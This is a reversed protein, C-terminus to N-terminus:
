ELMDVMNCIRKAPSGSATLAILLSALALFLVAWRFLLKGLDVLASYPKLVQVFVERIVAFTLLMGLGQITWYFYWYSNASYWKSSLVMAIQLILTVVGFIVLNFFVPFKAQFRRRVMLIIVAVQLILQTLILAWQVFSLSMRPVEWRTHFCVIGAVSKELVLGGENLTSFYM